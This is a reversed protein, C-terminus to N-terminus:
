LISTTHLSRTVSKLQPQIDCYTTHFILIIFRDFLCTKSYSFPDAVLNITQSIAHFPKPLRNALYFIEWKSLLHDYHHIYWTAPCINASGLFLVLKDERALLKSNRTTWLKWRRWMVASSPQSVDRPIGPAWLGHWSSRALLLLGLAAGAILGVHALGCEAKMLLPVALHKGGNGPPDASSSAAAPTSPGRLGQPLSCYPNALIGGNPCRDGLDQNASGWLQYFVGPTQSVEWLQSCSPSPFSASDVTCWLLGKLVHLLHYHRGNIRFLSEQWGTPFLLIHISNYPM